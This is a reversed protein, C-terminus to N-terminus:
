LRSLEMITTVLSLAIFGVVAAMFLVLAPEIVALMRRSAVELEFDYAAAVHELVDPLSGSREGVAVLQAVLPPFLGNGAMSSSIERGQLVAERIRGVEGAFAANPMVRQLTELAELAPVGTRLLTAFSMAFRSILSKQLAQGLLPVRLLLGDLVERGRPRRRWWAVALLVAAAIVCAVWAYNRVLNAGAFLLSTVLPLPRKHMRLLPEIQPVVYGSLFVLLGVILVAVLAPYVLASSVRAQLLRRQELFDALRDFVRDLTGSKEGSAVMGIYARDFFHPFVSMAEALPKGANVAERIESLALSLRRHDTQRALIDLAQPLPVGARLLVALERTFVAVQLGARTRAGPLLALLGVARPVVLHVSEPFLGRQRLLARADAASDAVLVGSVATGSADVARYRFSAM